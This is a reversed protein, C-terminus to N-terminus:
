TVNWEFNTSGLLSQWGNPYYSYPCRWAWQPARPTQSTIVPTANFQLRLSYYPPVIWLSDGTTGPVPLASVIGPPYVGANDQNVDNEDRVIVAHSYFDSYSIGSEWSWSYRAELWQPGRLRFDVGDYRVVKGDINHLQGGAIISNAEADKRRNRRIVVSQTIREMKMPISIEDPEYGITLATSATNTVGSTIVQIKRVYPVSVAAIQQHVAYEQGLPAMRPDNTYRAIARFMVASVRQLAYHYLKVDTTVGDGSAGPGSVVQLVHGYDPLHASGSRAPIAAINGFFVTPNIWDVSFTRSVHAYGDVDYSLDQM